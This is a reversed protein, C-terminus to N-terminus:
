WGYIDALTRLDSKLIEQVDDEVPFMISNPNNSHNFIGIAHGIEHLMVTYVADKGLVHGSTAKDAILVEASIIHGNSLVRTNTLGIERDANPITTVFRVILDATKPNSVYKFVVKNQTLRSWEAFAHRMMITRKHNPPIYTKIARPYQWKGRSPSHPRSQATRKQLNAQTKQYPAAYSITYTMLFVAAIFIVTFFKKM